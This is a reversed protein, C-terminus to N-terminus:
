SPPFIFHAFLAVTRSTPSTTLSPSRLLFCFLFFLFLSRLPFPPCFPSPSLSSLFHASFHFGFVLLPSFFSPTSLLFLPRLSVSRSSHLRARHPM